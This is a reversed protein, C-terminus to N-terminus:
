SQTTKYFGFIFENVYRNGQTDSILLNDMDYPFEEIYFQSRKKVTDLLLRVSQTNDMDVFLENDGDPLVAYRPIQRLSPARGTEADVMKKLDETKVLWRALSLIVNKYSVRPLFPYNDTLNSWRLGFGARQNATQLDCLFHYIPLANMSFNHATTLRPIIIKNLQKSRLVIRNRKLSIYLDSLPIQYEQTVSSKALYPIEYPRIVPRFLINGIRSEPLHVIEALLTDEQLETEKQTIQLVFDNMAPDAHAFRALLNAAGSGGCSSLYILQKQENNTFIRCMASLTNPVDDWQAEQLKFDAESLEIEYRNEAHAELYKQHLVAQVPSWNLSQGQAQNPAPLIYKELLPSVDGQRNVPYGIGMESDLAQLLPMEIEEYRDYFATKFDNLNPNGYLPTLQNLFTIAEWVTAPVTESLKAKVPVKVMDTQFLYKPEFSVGIATIHSIIQEYLSLTTGIPLHNIKKLLSQIELLQYLLHWEEKLNERNEPIIEPYDLVARLREITRDLLDQGTVAPELESVLLQFDILETIFAKAEEFTIDEEVLLAALTDVTAGEKAAQLVRQLYEDNDVSVIKHKRHAEVFGYEVYRVAGQKAVSGVAYLTSNPEFKLKERIAKKRSLEQILSCLYNMDLRIHRKYEQPAPLVIDNKEGLEGVSCGSFLGFPTCRWNMRTAYKLLSLTLHKEEKPPLTGAKYRMLEEYLVPSAVYVAELFYSDQLFNNLLEQESKEGIVEEVRVPNWVRNPNEKNVGVAPTRMVFKGFPKYIIKM